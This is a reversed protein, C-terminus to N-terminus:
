FFEAADDDLDARRQQDIGVGAFHASCPERRQRCIECFQVALSAFEQDDRRARNREAAAKQFQRASRQFEFFALSSGRYSLDRQRSNPRLHEPSVADAGSL